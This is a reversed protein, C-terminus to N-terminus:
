PSLKALNYEPIIETLRFQLNRLVTSITKYIIRDLILRQSRVTHHRVLAFSLMRKIAVEVVNLANLVAFKEGLRIDAPVYFQNGEKM